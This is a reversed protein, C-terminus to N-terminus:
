NRDYINSIVCKDPKHDVWESLSYKKSLLLCNPIQQFQRDQQQYWVKHKTKGTNTSVIQFQMESTSMREHYFNSFFRYKPKLSRSFSIRTWYNVNSLVLAAFFCHQHADLVKEIRLFKKRKIKLRMLHMVNYTSLSM